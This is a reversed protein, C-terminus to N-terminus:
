HEKREFLLKFCNKYITLSIPLEYYLKFSITPRIKCKQTKKNEYVRQLSSAQTLFSIGSGGRVATVIFFFKMPLPPHGKEFLKHLQM